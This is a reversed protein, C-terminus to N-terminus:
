NDMIEENSLGKSNKVTIECYNKLTKLKIALSGMSSGTSELLNSLTPITPDNIERLLHEVGVEEAGIAGIQCPIYSFSQIMQPSSIKSCRPTHTEISQTDTIPGKINNELLVETLLYATTPVSSQNPRVDIVDLVLPTITFKPLFRKM